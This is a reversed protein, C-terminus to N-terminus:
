LYHDLARHIAKLSLGIDRIFCLLSAVLSVFSLVFLAMVLLQLNLHTVYIAFLGAIILSVFVISLLNLGIALRLIRCRQFIVRIQMRLHACEEEALADALRALGRAQETLRSYRNTMSLLLLGIGSIMAVPSISAQLMASFHEVDFSQM